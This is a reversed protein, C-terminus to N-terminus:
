SVVLLQLGTHRAQARDFVLWAPISGAIGWPVRGRGSPRDRDRQLPRWIAIGSM